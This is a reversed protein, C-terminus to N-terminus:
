VYSYFKGGIITNCNNIDKSSKVKLYFTLIVDSHRNIHLKRRLLFSSKIKIMM